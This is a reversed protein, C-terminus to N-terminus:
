LAVLSGWAQLKAVNKIKTDTKLVMLNYENVVLYVDVMQKRVKGTKKGKQTVQMQVEQQCPFVKSDGNNFWIMMNYNLGLHFRGLKRMSEKDGQQTKKITESLFAPIQQIVEFLNMSPRWETQGNPLLHRLLDRGDYLSPSCFKTKTMIIPPQFPFKDRLLIDFSFTELPQEVTLM